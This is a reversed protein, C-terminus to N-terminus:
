RPPPVEQGTVTTERAAGTLGGYVERSGGHNRSIAPVGSPRGLPFNAPCSRPGLAKPTKNREVGRPSGAFYSPFADEAFRNPRFSRRMTLSM